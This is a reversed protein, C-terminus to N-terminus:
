SLLLIQMQQEPTAPDNRLVWYRDEPRPGSSSNKIWIWHTRTDSSYVLTDEPYAAANLMTAQEVVQCPKFGPLFVFYKM